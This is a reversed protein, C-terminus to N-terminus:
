PQSRDLINRAAELQDQWAATSQWTSIFAGELAEVLNRLAAEIDSVVPAPQRAAEACAQGYYLPRIRVNLWGNEELDREEAKAERETDCLEADHDGYTVHWLVPKDKAPGVTGTAKAAETAAQWTLAAKWTDWTISTSGMAEDTNIWAEYAARTDTKSM